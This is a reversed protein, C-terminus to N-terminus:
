GSQRRQFFSTLSALFHGLDHWGLIRMSDLRPWLLVLQAIGTIFAFAVEGWSRCGPDHHMLMAGGPARAKGGGSNGDGKGDGGSRPVALDQWLTQWLVAM